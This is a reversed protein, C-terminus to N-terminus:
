QTITFINLLTKEGLIQLRYKHYFLLESFSTTSCVKQINVITSKKKKKKQSLKFCKNINRRWM